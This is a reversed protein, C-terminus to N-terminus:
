LIQKVIDSVRSEWNNKELFERRKLESYKVAKASMLDRLASKFEEYDKYFYVFDEFRLIEDYKVTLINMNYNIYEYLKVPDVSEIIENVKFPMSLCDTDNINDYLKDHAVTGAFEIRDSQPIDLGSEVPGIIRYKLNPFDELSKLLFEFDFWRSVTGIYSVTFEDGGRGGNQEVDLIEGNYGNRIVSLKETNSIKYKLILKNKLNESSVFIFDARKTLEKECDGIYAKRIDLAMAIHDDMCDYIIKGGYNKPIFKVQDPYTLFIYDPNHKKVQRLFQRALFANNIVRLPKIRGFFPISYVPSACLADDTRSQLTRRNRNQHMYVVSIDFYKRLGEALFQPRQKIWGWDVHSMYLMKKM